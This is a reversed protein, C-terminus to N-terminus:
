RKWSALFTAFIYCIIKRLDFVQFKSQYQVSFQSRLIVYFQMTGKAPFFILRWIYFKVLLWLPMTHFILSFVNPPVRYNFVVINKRPGKFHLTRLLGCAVGCLLWISGKMFENLFFLNPASSWMVYYLKMFNTYIKYKNQQFHSFFLVSVSVSVNTAGGSGM